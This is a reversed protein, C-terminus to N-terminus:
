FPPHPGAERPDETPASRSTRHPSVRRKTRSTKGTDDSDGTLSRWAARAADSAEAGSTRVEEVARALGEMWWKLNDPMDDLSFSGNDAYGLVPNVRDDAAIIVWGGDPNNYVYYADDQDGDRGAAMQASSKEQVPLTSM